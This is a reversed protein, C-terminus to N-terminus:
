IAKQYRISEIPNKSGELIVTCLVPNSKDNDSKFRDYGPM